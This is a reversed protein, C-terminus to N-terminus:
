ARQTNPQLRNQLHDLDETGLQLWEEYDPTTIFNEPHFAAKIQADSGEENHMLLDGMVGILTHCASFAQSLTGIDDILPQVFDQYAEDDVTFHSRDSFADDSLSSAESHHRSFGWTWLAKFRRAELLQREARSLPSDEALAYELVIAALQEGSDGNLFDYLCMLAIPQYPELTLAHYILRAGNRSRGDRALVNNAHRALTESTLDGIRAM